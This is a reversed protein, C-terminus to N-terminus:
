EEVKLIIPVTVVQQSALWPTKDKTSSSYGIQITSNAKMFYCESFNGGGFLKDVWLYNLPWGYRGINFGAIGKNMLTMNAADITVQITPEEVAYDYIGEIADTQDIVRGNDDMHFAGGILIISDKEITININQNANMFYYKAQSYDVEIHLQNTETGPVINVTKWYYNGRDLNGRVGYINNEIQSEILKINIGDDYHLIAGKPYGQIAIVEENFEHVGGTEKFLKEETAMAGFSNMTASYIYQGSNEANPDKATLSSFGDKFSIQTDDSSDDSDDPIDETSFYSPIPTMLARLDELNRM